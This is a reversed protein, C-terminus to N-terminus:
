KQVARSKFSILDFRSIPVTSETTEMFEIEVEDGPRAILIEPAIISTGTYIRPSENEQRLTLYCVTDGDVVPCAYRDIFGRSHTTHADVKAPNEENGTKMLLQRYKALGDQKNEGLVVSTNSARVFAVRQFIGSGSVVPVVWTLEGYINYLIPQTAYWGDYNSVAADVAKMVGDENAGSLHYIRTHGSRSDMMAFGVLSDDTAKSSTLGTFWYARGDDGWTLWLPDPDVMSTSPDTPINVGEEDWVSNWWGHVYKGYDSLRDRAVYMPIVRDIWEPLDALDYEEFDGTQPDVVVVGTVVYGLHGITPKCVTVVFFPNGEDDIEFTYDTTGRFVFGNQYLYRELNDGYYASPLYRFKFDEKLVGPKSPDEADVMVYGPSVDASVWVTWSQFELPAVWVLQDKVKQITMKGIKYRSGLAADKSQGLTKTAIWMAQGESVLRIHDTNVPMLDSQWDSEKVDQAVFNRYENDYFMGCGRFLGILPLVVVLILFTTVATRTRYLKLQFEDTELNPYSDPYRRECRVRDRLKSSGLLCLSVNVLLGPVLPIWWGLGWFPGILQPTIKYAWLTGIVWFSLTLWLWKKWWGTRGFNFPIGALLGIVLGFLWYVPHYM